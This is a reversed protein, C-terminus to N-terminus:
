SQRALEARIQGILHHQTTLWLHFIDQHYLAVEYNFRRWLKEGGRKRVGRNTFCAKLYLTILSKNENNPLLLLGWLLCVTIFISYAARSHIISEVLQCYWFLNNAEGCCHLRCPTINGPMGIRRACHFSGIRHSINSLNWLSISYVM